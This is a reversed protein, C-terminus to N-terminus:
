LIWTNWGPNIKQYHKKFFTDVTDTDSANSARVFGIYGKTFANVGAQQVTMKKIEVNPLDLDRGSHKKLAGGRITWTNWSPLPKLMISKFYTNAVQSDQANSPRVFALYNKSLGYDKAAELTMSMVEANAVEFDRSELKVYQPSPPVPERLTSGGSQPTSQENQQLDSDSDPQSEEQSEEQSEDQSQGTQTSNVDDISSQTENVRRELQQIESEQEAQNQLIEKQGMQVNTIETWLLYTVAGIVCLLLFFSVVGGIIEGPGGGDQCDSYKDTM